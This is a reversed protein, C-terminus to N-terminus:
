RDTNELQRRGCLVRSSVLAIRDNSAEQDIREKKKKKKTKQTQKTSKHPEIM